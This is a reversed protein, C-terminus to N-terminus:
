SNSAAIPIKSIVQQNNEETLEKNEKNDIDGPSIPTGQQDYETLDEFLTLQEGAIYDSYTKGIHGAYMEPYYAFNRKKMKGTRKDLYEEPQASFMIAETLEFVLILGEKSNRVTGVAKYRRSKDWVMMNYITESFEVSTIAKSYYKDGKKKAWEVTSAGENKRMIVAIKKQKDDIFPLIHIIGEFLRISATNFEISGYKISVAPKKLMSFQTRPPLEYGDLNEYELKDEAEMKAKAYEQVLEVERNTLRTNESEM